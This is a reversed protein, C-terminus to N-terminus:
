AKKVHLTKDVEIIAGKLTHEVRNGFGHFVASLHMSNSRGM